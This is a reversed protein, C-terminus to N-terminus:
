AKGRGEKEQRQLERRLIKGVTTKPLEDRFEVQTPVKFPALQERCFERIEEVTATEGEHLMPADWRQNLFWYTHEPHFHLSIIDEDDENRKHWHKDVKEGEIGFHFPGWDPYASM